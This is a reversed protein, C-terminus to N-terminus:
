NMQTKVSKSGMRAKHFYSKIKTANERELSSDTESQKITYLLDAKMHESNM